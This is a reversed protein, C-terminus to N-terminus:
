IEEVRRFEVKRLVRIQLYAFGVLASGLIWAMATAVSFRLNSYAELWIAMSMVMTEKGPGGFTLLFINGMSQFTGIFAGVFNIILLPMLQPITVFRLKALVGAGDLAAAEYLEDPIGKLAALYILSSIGTSAWVTPIITAVMATKPNGLWDQIPLHFATMLQNLLGTETPSYML